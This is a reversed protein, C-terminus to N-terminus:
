FGLLKSPPLNQNSRFNRADLKVTQAYGEKDDDMTLYKRMRREVEKEWRTSRDDGGAVDGVHICLEKLLGLQDPYYPISASSEPSTIDLSKPRYRATMVIPIAPPPYFAISPSTGATPQPVAAIDTAWWEPYNSIGSATYSADLEALSFQKPKFVEGLVNYFIDGDSMRLYNSPLPYFYPIVPQPGTNLTTTLRVTDLDLTLAYTNLIMNLLQGAQVARGPANCIQCALTVLQQATQM